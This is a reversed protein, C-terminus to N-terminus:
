QVVYRQFTGNIIEKVLLICKRDAAEVLKSHNRPSHSGFINSEIIEMIKRKNNSNTKLSMSSKFM